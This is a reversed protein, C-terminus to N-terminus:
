RRKHKRTYKKRIVKNKRTCKMTNSMRKKHKHVPVMFFGCFVEYIGRAAKRPDKILEGRCDKNTAKRWGNKHSWYGNSDQRYFHFERGAKNRFLAIRYYGYPCKENTKLKKSGKNDRLIGKVVDKCNYPRTFLYGDAKGPRAWMFEWRKRFLKKDYNYTNENKKYKRCTKVINKDIKNLAYMYCNHSKTVCIDDNWKEPEWKPHKLHSLNMVIIHKSYDLRLYIINFM